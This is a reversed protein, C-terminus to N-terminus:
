EAAIRWVAALTTTADERFWAWAAPTQVRLAAQANRRFAPEPLIGHSVV